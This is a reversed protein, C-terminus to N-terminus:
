LKCEPCSEGSTKSARVSESGQVELEMQWLWMGLGSRGKGTRRPGRCPPRPPCLKEEMWGHTGCGSLLPCVAEAGRLLSPVPSLLALGLPFSMHTRRLAM